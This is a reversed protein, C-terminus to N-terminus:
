IFEICDKETFAIYLALSDSKYLDYNDSIKEWSKDNIDFERNHDLIIRKRPIRQASNIGMSQGCRDCTIGLMEKLKRDYRAISEKETPDTDKHLQILEEDTTFPFVKTSIFDNVIAIISSDVTKGNAEWTFIRDAFPSENEKENTLFTEFTKKGEIDLIM